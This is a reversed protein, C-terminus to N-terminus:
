IEWIASYIITPNHMSLSNTRSTYESLIGQMYEKSHTVCEFTHVITTDNDIKLTVYVGYTKQTM